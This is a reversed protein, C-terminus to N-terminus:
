FAHRAIVVRGASRGEATLLTLLYVGPAMGHVPVDVETEIETLHLWRHLVARGTMDTVTLEALGSVGGGLTIRLLDSAPNPYLTLTRGGSVGQLGIHGVKRFATDNFAYPDGPLKTYAKIEMYGPSVLTPTMMYDVTAGPQLLGNWTHHIEVGNNIRLAIPISTLPNKGFNKIRVMVQYNQGQPVTMVPLIIHTIGADLAAKEVSIMFDDIAWGNFSVANNSFFDFKFQVPSPHNNFSSLDYSSYVWKGTHGSFAPRGAANVNYWNVGKPDHVYGLTIFVNGGDVSYKVNGGDVGFETEVWHWFRLSLGSYESLDFSPTILGHSMNHLYNGSLRTTWVRTPSYATNIVGAMPKGHQWLVALEPTWGNHDDNEFDDFYLAVFDKEGLLTVSLTDNVRYGDLPHDTYFLLTFVGDPVTLPVTYHHMLSDGPLLPTNITDFHPPNGQVMYGVPLTYLTDSGLNKVRVSLPVQSAEILPPNFSGVATVGADYALPPMILILYDETEGYSYTGCPSVLTLNSTYMAVVRMRALGTKAGYPMMFSGSLINNSSSTIGSFVVENAPHFSGDGDLDIYVKVGFIYNFSSQMQVTVSVPYHIGQIFPVPTIHTYDTYLKMADPSVNYLAGMQVVGIDALSTWQASSICYPPILHIVQSRATDNSPTTDGQLSTWAVFDYVQWVSLDAPVSFHLHITDGAPLTVAFTETVPTAGNIAYAVELTNLPQTGFNRVAVTVQETATLSTDTAPTLISVVGADYPPYASMYVHLPVRNGPCGLTSLPPLQPNYEGITQIPCPMNSVMWDSAHNTDDAVRIVGARGSASPINGSWDAPTVMGNAPFQYNNVAFADEVSGDPAELWLGLQSTAFLSQNDAVFFRKATDSQVQPFAYISLVFVEGPM